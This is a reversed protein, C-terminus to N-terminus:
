GAPREPRRDFTALVTESDELHPLRLTDDELEVIVTETELRDDLWDREVRLSREDWPEVRWLPQRFLRDHAVVADGDVRYEVGAYRLWHDASSLGFPVMVAAAALPVAVSWVRGTAFLLAIMGLFVGVVAANPHRVLTPIGGFLRGHLTPRVCAADESIDDDVARDTPPDYAVGLSVDTAEDYTELRDAYQDVLDLATKLGVIGLLLPVGVTGPDRIASSASAGAPAAVVVVCIGVLFLAGGRFLVGQLATQASHERYARQYFYEFGTRGAEAVVITLVALGLLWEPQEPEAVGVVGVTVGSVAFWLLSLLPTAILLVPVSSIRIGIDTRPVTAHLSRRALAGLVLPDDDLDSPRGAFAARVLAALLVVSFEVWYLLILTTPQWGLAGVGVLPVANAALVGLVEFRPLWEPSAGVLGPVM